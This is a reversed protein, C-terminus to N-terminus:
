KKNEEFKNIHYDFFEKFESCKIDWTWEKIQNLNEKSLIEFIEPNEILKIIKKKLEEKSREELIYGKQENGFADRVIGVDTSIIPVGSAMSELVPNPTGEQKSGCIYVDISNYYDPMKEHLIYGDAKDAFKKEIPYGEKILGEIAPNIIKRVGKLDDDNESDTFESNGVWGILIKRDKINKFRELNKPKFRKLDVGDSVMSHPKKDIDLDNYINFLKSSSTTYGKSYKIFSETIWFSEKDLFSHDYVSTTMNIKNVFEEIFEEYKYGLSEIYGKVFEGELESFMGRWLLHVLDYRKALFMLRVVNDTFVSKPFIDIEYYDSLKEKVIRAINNFAWGDVDYIIAIKKKKSDKEEKIYEPGILHNKMGDLWELRQALIHNYKEINEKLDKESEM